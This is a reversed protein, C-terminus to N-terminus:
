EEHETPMPTLMRQQDQQMTRGALNSVENPGNGNNENAPLTTRAAHLTQSSNSLASLGHATDFDADSM